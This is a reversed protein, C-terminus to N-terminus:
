NARTGSRQAVLSLAKSAFSVCLKFETYVQENLKSITKAQDCFVIGLPKKGVFLSMLFFNESHFTQKFMEPLLPRYKRYNGSKIWISQPINLLSKFLGVRAIDLQLDHLPSDHALGKSRFIFLSSSNKSCMMMVKSFHLGDHLRNVLLELIQAQSAKPSKLLVGIESKLKTLTPQATNM